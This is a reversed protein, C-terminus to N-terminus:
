HAHRGPTNRPGRPANPPPTNYITRHPQVFGHPQPVQAARPDVVTPPMNYARPDGYPLPNYQPGYSGGPYPPCPFYVPGHTPMSPYPHPPVSAMPHAHMPTATFAPIPRAVPHVSVPAAIPAPAYCAQSAPAPASVMAPVPRPVSTSPKIPASTPNVAPVKKSSRRPASSPPTQTSTRQPTDKTLDKPSSSDGKERDSAPSKGVTNPNVIPIAKSPRSPRRLAQQSSQQPAKKPAQQPTQQPSPKRDAPTANGSNNPSTSPAKNAADYEKPNIRRKEDEPFRNEKLVTKIEKRVQKMVGLPGDWEEEVIDTIWYIGSNFNPNKDMRANMVYCEDTDMMILMMNLLEKAYYEGEPLPCWFYWADWDADINSPVLGNYQESYCGPVIKFVRAATDDKPIKALEM